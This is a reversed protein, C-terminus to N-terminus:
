KNKEQEAKAQKILENRNASIEAIAKQGKASNKFAILDAILEANTKETKNDQKAM